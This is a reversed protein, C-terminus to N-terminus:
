AAEDGVLYAATALLELDGYALSGAQDAASLQAYAQAWAQRAFSQRGQELAGTVGTM